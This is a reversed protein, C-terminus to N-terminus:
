YYILLTRAKRFGATYYFIWFHFLHSCPFHRLPLLLPPCKFNIYCPLSVSWTSLSSPPFPDSVAEKILNGKLHARFVSHFNDWASPLPFTNWESQQFSQHYTNRTSIDTVVNQMICHCWALNSSQGMANSLNLLPKLSREHYQLLLLVRNTIYGHLGM